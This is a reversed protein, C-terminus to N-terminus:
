GRGLKAVEVKVGTLCKQAEKLETKVENLGDKIDTVHDKVDNKIDSGQRDHATFLTCYTDWKGYLDALLKTNDRHTKSTQWLFWGLAILMAMWSLVLLVAIIGFEKGVTVTFKGLEEGM